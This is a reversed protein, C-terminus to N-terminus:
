MSSATLAAIRAASSVFPLQHELATQKAPANQSVLPSRRSRSAQDLDLSPHWSVTRHRWIAYSAPLTVHCGFFVREFGNSGRHKFIEFLHSGSRLAVKIHDLPGHSGKWAGILLLYAGELFANLPLNCGVSVEPLLKQAGLIKLFGETNLDLVKLSACLHSAGAFPNGFRGDLLADSGAIAPWQHHAELHMEMDAAAMFLHRISNQSPLLSMFFVIMEIASRARIPAGPAIACLPLLPVDTPEVM